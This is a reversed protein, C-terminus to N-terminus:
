KGKETQEGTFPDIYEKMSIQEVVRDETIQSQIYKQIATKNRGVTDVFYGRCWFHRNGYKYKLNAFRDFIMLASKGKLIGMFRSVSMKPPIAVLMHIHDTCANAEIIEVDYRECITRIIKGIEAKYKGYIAQRRYKPTIVIHYQCRWKTHALSEYDNKM